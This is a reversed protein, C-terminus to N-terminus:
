SLEGFLLASEEKGRGKDRMLSKPSAASRYILPVRRRSLPRLPGHRLPPHRPLAPHRRAQHQVHGGPAEGPVGAAAPQLAADAGGGGGAGDLGTWDLGGGRARLRK